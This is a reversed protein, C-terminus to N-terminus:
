RSEELLERLQRACVRSDFRAVARERAGRGLAARREPDRALAEVHTTLADVDRQEIFLGSEGPVLMDPTGGVRSTIVPVGCAAAEMIAVPAAEVESALVFVDAREQLVRRVETESLSGLIEVHEGIGLEGVLRRLEPEYPGSGVLLYRVDHGSARANKLARFVLEHGKTLALRAVTVLTLTNSATEREPGPVFEDANVGMTIVEVRQSALGPIAHVEDRLPRTVTVVFAAGGMKSRHSTGYVELDGHVVVSYPPGGALRSLAALHASNACSHVHLHDIRAQRCREALDLASPIMAAVRARGMPSDDLSALYTAFRAGALPARALARAVGLPRPPFVYETTARAERDFAHPCSDAPPRRTSFFRTEDGFSRLALAERWFFVHTQGPFEPVLYGVRM